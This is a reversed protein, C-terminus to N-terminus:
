ALALRCHYAASGLAPPGLGRGSARRLYGVYNVPGAVGIDAREFLEVAEDPLNQETKVVALLYLFEADGPEEFGDRCIKGAGDPDGPAIGDIVQQRQEEISM